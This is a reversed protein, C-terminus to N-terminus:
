NPNNPYSSIPQIEEIKMILSNLTCIIGSKHRAKICDFYVLADKTAFSFVRMAGIQMHAGVNTAELVDGEANNSSVIFSIVEYSENLSKLKFASVNGIYCVLGSASDKNASKAENPIDVRSFSVGLDVTPRCDKTVQAISAMSVSLLFIITFLQKM